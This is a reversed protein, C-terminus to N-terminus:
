HDTRVSSWNRAVAFGEMTNAAEICGAMMRVAKTDMRDSSHQTGSAHQAASPFSNEVINVPRELIMMQEQAQVQSGSAWVSSELGPNQEQMAEAALVLGLHSTAEPM